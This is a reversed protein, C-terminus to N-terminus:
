FIRPSPKRWGCGASTVFPDFAVRLHFRKVIEEILLHPRTNSVVALKTRTALAKVVETIGPLPVSGRVEPMVFAWEARELTADDLGLGHRRALESLAWRTTYVQRYCSAGLVKLFTKPLTRSSGLPARSCLIAAAALANAAEFRDGNSRILTGGVDFIVGSVTM